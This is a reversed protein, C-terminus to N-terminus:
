LPALAVKQHCPCGSWASGRGFLQSALPKCPIPHSGHGLYAPNTPLRQFLQNVRSRPDLSSSCTSKKALRVLTDRTHSRESRCLISSISAKYRGIQKKSYNGVDILGAGRSAWGALGDDM